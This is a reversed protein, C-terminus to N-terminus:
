RWLGSSSNWEHCVRCSGDNAAESSRVQVFFAARNPVTSNPGPSVMQENRSFSPTARGPQILAPM